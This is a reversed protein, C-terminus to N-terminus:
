AWLRQLPLASLVRSQWLVGLGLSYKNTLMGMFAEVEIFRADGLQWCFGTYSAEGLFCWLDLTLWPVRM